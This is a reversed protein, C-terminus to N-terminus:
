PSEPKESPWRKSRMQELRSNNGSSHLYQDLTRRTEIWFIAEQAKKKKIILYPEITRQLVLVDNMRTCVLRYCDKTTHPQWSQLFVKMFPVLKHLYDIWNKDTNSINVLVVRSVNGCKLNKRSGFYITGETDVACAVYASQLDSLSLSPSPLLLAM